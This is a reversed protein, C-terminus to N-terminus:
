AMRMGVGFCQRLTANLVSVRKSVPMTSLSDAVVRYLGQTGQPPTFYFAKTVGALLFERVADVEARSGIHQLTYTTRRTNIGDEAVQEYGDGMTVSRVRVSTQVQGQHQIQLPWRYTQPNAM